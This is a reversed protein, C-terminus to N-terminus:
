IALGFSPTNSRLYAIWFDEIVKMAEDPLLPGRIDVHHGDRVALLSRSPLAYPLQSIEADKETPCGYVLRPIGSWYIAGCCMVCPECSAYLTCAAFFAEGFRKGAERILALEAHATMDKTQVVTNYRRLVIENNHVLVAGYPYQGHRVAIMSQAIAERLFTEDHPSRM